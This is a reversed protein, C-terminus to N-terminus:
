NFHNRLKLAPNEIWRWFFFAFCCQTSLATMFYLSPFRNHFDLQCILQTIPFHTLYLSYSLDPVSRDAFTFKLGATSLTAAALCFPSVVALSSQILSPTKGHETIFLSLPLAILWMLLVWSVKLNPLTSFFSSLLIGALFHTLPLFFERQLHYAPADAPASQLHLAYMILCAGVYFLWLLPLRKFCRALILFLPLLAYFLVEIKITWLAGNIVPLFLDAFVGSLSPKLFNLFVLNALLYHAQEFFGRASITNLYCVNLTVFFFLISACYAPYIRLVRKLFYTKLDPSRDFSQAVLFGSM